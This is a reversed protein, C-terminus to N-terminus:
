WQGGAVGYYKLLESTTKSRFFPSRSVATGAETKRTQFFSPPCHFIATINARGSYRSEDDGFAFYPLLPPAVVQDLPEGVTNM